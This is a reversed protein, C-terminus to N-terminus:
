EIIEIYKTKPIISISYPTTIESKVIQNETPYVIKKTVMIKENEEHISEIDISFGTNNQEGLYLILIANTNFDILALKGFNSTEIKLSDITKIYSENDKILKFGNKKSGGFKSTYITSFDSNLFVKKYTSCGILLSIIAINIIKKSFQKFIFTKM